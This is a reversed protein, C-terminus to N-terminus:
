RTVLFREVGLELLEAILRVSIEVHGVDGLIHVFMYASGNMAKSSWIVSVRHLLETSDEGRM